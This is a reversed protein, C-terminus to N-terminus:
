KKYVSRYISDFSEVLKLAFDPEELNCDVEEIDIRVKLLKKLVDLFIRDEEPNHLVTGEKDISSWGRTPFLVKVPGTAKNLKESYLRAVM